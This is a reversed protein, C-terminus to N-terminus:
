SRPGEIHHTHRNRSTLESSVRDIYRAAADRGGLGFALGLAISLSVVIGTFLTQIFATAVNLQNLATLIAFIWISWRAVSGLFYPSGVDAAKATSVAADHAFDALVAAILLILVAVIVQPLYGFVIDGIFGTVQDLKLLDLAVVGFVAIVFWKVLSGVIDGARLHRGNRDTFVDLGSNKLASDLKLTDTLQSVIKALGGGVVWGIIVLAIAILISPLYQAVSAWMDSMRALLTGSLTNVLDM